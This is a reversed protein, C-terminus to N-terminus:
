REGNSGKESCDVEKKRVTEVNQAWTELAKRKETAYDHFDYHQATVSHDTHGLVRAIVFRTIGLRAMGTAATERLDRGQWPFDVPPKRYNNLPGHRSPFVYVSIRPMSAIISLVLPSLPVVHTRHNKTRSGPITWVDGAIEDWRMSAVEGRRQGTLMLTRWFGCGIIGRAEAALWIAGLEPDSLSHVRPEEAVRKRVGTVPSFEVIDESAAWRFLGGILAHVRNAAKPSGARVMGDLLAIVDAKRISDIPRDRWVPLVHNDLNRLSETIYSQKWPYRRGAGMAMARVYRQAVTGLFREPSATIAMEAGPPNPTMGSKIAMARRRAEALSMDPYTGLTIRKRKFMLTWVRRGRPNRPTPGSIRIAMGPMASDFRDFRTGAIAKLRAVAIDTLKV